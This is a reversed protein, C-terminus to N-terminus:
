NRWLRQPYIGQAKLGAIEKRVLDMDERWTLGFWCEDTNLVEVEIKKQKIGFDIVSPLFFEKESVDDEELFQLFLPEALEFFFPTLVWFNMSVPTHPSLKKWEGNESKGSIGDSEKKIEGFEEIHMLKGKQTNCIGRSVGGSPSLTNQLEFANLAFTASERNGQMWKIATEFTKRGYFDDANVTIFPGKIKEKACYVAHGTGLPKRREAMKSKYKEPVFADTRQVIFDVEAERSKLIETLRSKEDEPYNEGIILVFKQIGSKLADYISFDMLSENNVSVADSQKSGGYRSGKGGALILLTLESTITM